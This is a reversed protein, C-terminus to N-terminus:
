ARNDVSNLGAFRTFRRWQRLIRNEPRGSTAAQAPIGGDVQEFWELCQRLNWAIFGGRVIEKAALHMAQTEKVNQPHLNLVM